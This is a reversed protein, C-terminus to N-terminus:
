FPCDPERRRKRAVNQPATPAPEAAAQEPEGILFRHPVALVFPWETSYEALALVCSRGKLFDYAEVYWCFERELISRFRRGQDELEEARQRSQVLARRTDAEKRALEFAVDVDSLRDVEPKLMSGFLVVRVVKALFYPNQNVEAVRELFQAFVREATARTVPKAASAAAFTMGAQTLTWVGRGAAAILGEARLAKVLNRGSGPALGAAAELVPLGWQLRERLRRLTTRVVIAPYEGIMGKADIHMGNWCLGICGV